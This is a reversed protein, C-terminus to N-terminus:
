GSHSAGTFPWSDGPCRLQEFSGLGKSFDFPLHWHSDISIREIRKRRRNKGCDPDRPNSSFIGATKQAFTPDCWLWTVLEDCPLMLLGVVMRVWGWMCRKSQPSFGSLVPPPGVCILSSCVFAVCYSQVGPISTVSYRQMMWPRKLMAM